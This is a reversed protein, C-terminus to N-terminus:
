LAIVTATVCVKKFCEPLARDMFRKCNEDAEALGLYYLTRLQCNLLSIILVTCTTATSSNYSNCSWLYYYYFFLLTYNM